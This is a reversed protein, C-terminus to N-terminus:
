CQSRCIYVEIKERSNEEKLTSFIPVIQRVGQGQVFLRSDDLKLALLWPSLVRSFPV